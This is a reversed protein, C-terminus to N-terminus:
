PQPPEPRLHGEEARNRYESAILMGKAVRLSAIVLAVTVPPWIIVHLWWPPSAALELSIAAICVITGIILTLFAAPGDGVNFSDYDLGCVRCRPAFRIMGDFLTKAGCRPCLGQLGAAVITPEATPPTEIM